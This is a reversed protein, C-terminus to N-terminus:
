KRQARARARARPGDDDMEDNDEDDDESTEANEFIYQLRELNRRAVANREDEGQSYADLSPREPIELSLGGTYDLLSMPPERAAADRDYAECNVKEEPDWRTFKSADYNFIHGLLLQQFQRRDKVLYLEGKERDDLGGTCQLDKEYINVIKELRKTEDKDAEFWHTAVKMDPVSQIMAEERTMGYRKMLYRISQMMCGFSSIDAPSTVMPTATFLYLGAFFFPSSTLITRIWFLGVRNQPEVSMDVDPSMLTHAEDAIVVTNKTPWEKDDMESWPVTPAANPFLETDSPLQTTEHNGTFSKGTVCKLEEANKGKGQMGNSFELYTVFVVNRSKLYAMTVEQKKGLKDSVAVVEDSFVSGGHADETKKPCKPAAAPSSRSGGEKPGGTQYKVGAFPNSHKTKKGTKDSAEYKKDLAALLGPEQRHEQIFKNKVRFDYVKKAATKIENDAYKGAGRDRELAEFEEVTEKGHLLMDMELGLLRLGEDRPLDWAQSVIENQTAPQCVIFITYPRKQRVAPYLYKCAIAWIAFTKGSGTSMDLLQRSRTPRRLGKSPDNAKYPGCAALIIKQHAALSGAYNRRSLADIGLHQQLGHRFQLPAKHNWQEIAKQFDPDRGLATLKPDKGPSFPKSLLEEVTMRSRSQCPDTAAPDFIPQRQWMDDVMDLRTRLESSVKVWPTFAREKHVINVVLKPAEDDGVVHLKGTDEDRIVIQFKHTKGLQKLKDSLSSGSFGALGAIEAWNTPGQKRSGLGSESTTLLLALAVAEGLNRFSQLPHMSELLNWEQQRDNTSM